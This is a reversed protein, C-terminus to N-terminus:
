EYRESPWRSRGLPRKEFFNAHAPTLSRRLAEAFPLGPYARCTWRQWRSPHRPGDGVHWAPLSRAAIRTGLWEVQRLFHLGAEGAPATRGYALLVGQAMDLQRALVARADLWGDEGAGLVAIAGTGRSAIAFFNAIVVQEFGLLEAAMAVRRLTREGETLPPNALVAAM